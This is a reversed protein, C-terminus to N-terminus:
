ALAIDQSIAAGFGDVGMRNGNYIMLTQNGNAILAPYCLTESDWGESGCCIGLLSDNRNWQIGDNSQFYSPTYEGSLSGKTAYMVYSGDKLKYVKPRGIRYEPWIAEVCTEAQRPIELLNKTETYCIHYQPYATGNIVEWGNGRAFWLRWLGDEYRATHIAGITTQGAARGLIPAESLRNFTEGNDHSVAVGSFALFKAKKVLQFGVYFLYIGDSTGVVDGLIVGNDDFCGDRGIDLVPKDSVRLIKSPNRADIDVFGIRSIGATDRFGAYVRITEDNLQYPQPTLASNVFWSGNAHSNANFILGLKEWKM